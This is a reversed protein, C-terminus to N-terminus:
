GQRIHDRTVVNLHDQINITEHVATGTGTGTETEAVVGGETGKQAAVEVAIEVERGTEKEGIGNENVNAPSTGILTKAAESKKPNRKGRGRAGTRTTDTRIMKM